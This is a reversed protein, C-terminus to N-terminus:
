KKLAYLLTHLQYFKSSDSHHNIEHKSKVSKFM